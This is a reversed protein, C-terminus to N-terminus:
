VAISTVSAFKLALCTRKEKAHSTFKELLKVKKNWFRLILLSNKERKFDCVKNKWSLLHPLIITLWFKSRMESTLFKGTKWKWLKVFHRKKKWSIIRNSKGNCKTWKEDSNQQNIPGDCYTYCTEQFKLKNNM